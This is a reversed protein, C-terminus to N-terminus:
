DCVLKRKIQPQQPGKRALDHRNRAYKSYGIRPRSRPKQPKNTDVLQFMHDEEEHIYSYMQGGAGYGGGYKNLTKRDSYLNGGWDAVKGLRDGKSFPQYPIDSFKDTTSSPGWGNPNDHIEPLTFRVRSEAM